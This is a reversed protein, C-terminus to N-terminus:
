NFQCQLPHTNHLRHIRQILTTLKRGRKTSCISKQSQNLPQEPRPGKGQREQRYASVLSNNVLLASMEWLAPATKPLLCADWPLLVVTRTLNPMNRQLTGACGLGYRSWLSNTRHRHSRVGSAETPSHFFM